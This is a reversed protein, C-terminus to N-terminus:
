RKPILQQFDLALIFIMAHDSVLEYYLLADVRKVKKKKTKSTNIVVRGKLKLAQIARWKKDSNIIIIDARGPVKTLKFPHMSKHISQARIIKSRLACMSPDIYIRYPTLDAKQKAAKKKAASKSATKKKAM